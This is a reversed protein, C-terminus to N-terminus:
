VCEVGLLEAQALEAIEPIKVAIFAFPAFSVEEMGRDTQPM